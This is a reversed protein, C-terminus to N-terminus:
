EGFDHALVGVRAHWECMSGFCTASKVLTLTEVCVVGVMGLRRHSINVTFCRKKAQLTFFFFASRALRARIESFITFSCLRAREMTPCSTLEGDTEQNMM